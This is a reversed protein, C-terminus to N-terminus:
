GVEGDMIDTTYLLPQCDDIMIALEIKDTGPPLENFRSSPHIRTHLMLPGADDGVM